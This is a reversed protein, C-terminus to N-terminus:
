PTTIGVVAENDVSAMIFRDPLSISMLVVPLLPTSNIAFSTSFPLISWDPIFKVSVTADGDISVLLMSVGDAVTKKIFTLPLLKKRNLGVCSSMDKFLTIVDNVWSQLGVAVVTLAYTCFEKRVGKRFTLDLNFVCSTLQRM